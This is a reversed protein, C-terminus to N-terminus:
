HVIVTGFVDAVLVNPTLMTVRIYSLHESSTTNASDCVSALRIHVGGV